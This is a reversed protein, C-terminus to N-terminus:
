GEMLILLPTADETGAITPFFEVAGTLPPVFRNGQIKSMVVLDQQM